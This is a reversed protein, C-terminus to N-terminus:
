QIRTAVIVVHRDTVRIETAVVRSTNLWFQRTLDVQGKWAVPWYEEATLDDLVVMGGLAVLDIVADPHEAKVQGGDAFLLQFPRYATLERWDGHLVQVRLDDAFIHRVAHVFDANTDVTVLTANTHLASALWATGVGCGTGIEAIRGHSLSATLVALLRGVEPLSSKTFGFQRVLAQAAQVRPPTYSRARYSTM